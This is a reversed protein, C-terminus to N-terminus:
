ETPNLLWLSDWDQLQLHCLPERVPPPHTRWHGGRGGTRIGDRRIAERGPLARRKGQRAGGRGWESGQSPGQGEWRGPRGAVLLPTGGKNREAYFQAPCSAGAQGMQIFSAPIQPTTSAPPPSLQTTQTATKGQPGCAQAAPRRHVCSQASGGSAGRPRDGGPGKPATVQSAEPGQQRWHPEHWESNQTNM